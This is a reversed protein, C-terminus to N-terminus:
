LGGAQESTNLSSERAFSMMILATLKARPVLSDVIMFEDRSHINGGCVGLTDINPLGAAAFKNGDSAGGTGRWTIPIELSEGCQVIRKQLAITAENMPKPPSQFLGHMECTIGDMRNTEAALMKLQKIAADKQEVTKVRVNVRGIALDPVMNLAGGGEIRGINFTIEPDRNLGHIQDMLWCTAAIANRGSEFDRGSHASRGRVVFTFNGAGKRWSVLGGDPLSPEFLLGADAERARQHLFDTSGLSGIEEDPNIIVEWGVNGALSTQELALLGYLMVVLGGKADAVGPGNIHLGHNLMQCSQFPNNKEYVTDMHICLLIRPRIEPRKVIHIARGLPQSEIEGHRNVLECAPIEQREIAGGLKSYETVLMQAVREMGEPNFTGSNQNCLRIVLQLMESQKDDLWDLEDILENM